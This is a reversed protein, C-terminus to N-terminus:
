SHGGGTKACQEALQLHKELVPVMKSAYAKVDADEGHEAERKYVVIAHRHAAVEDTAFQHDFRAGKLHALQQISPIKGSNIGKPIAVDTKAALMSLEGYSQTHDKVLTQGLDKVDARNAQSEAMEGEHAETMDTQAATVLFQKDASSLSAGHAIGATFLVFCCAGPLITRIWM